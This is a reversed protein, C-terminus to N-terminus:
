RSLLTKGYLFLEAANRFRVREALATPLTALWRRHYAYVHDVTQWGSDATHWSDIETVPWIPDSGIMFRQSYRQMLELWGAQLHGNVEAVPIGSVSKLDDRASFEVWVNDCHSLLKGVGDAQLGGAHAWIFKTKSHRTCIRRMYEFNSANTHLNVPADFEAAIQLISNFVESDMRPGIGDSVHIEGVGHYKGSALAERVAAPARKNLFWNSKLFPQLYPQFFHVLQLRADGQLNLVLEPPTGFVVALAVDNRQMAKVAEEPSTVEVQSWKYHVHVDALPPLDKSTVQLSWFLMLITSSFVSINRM